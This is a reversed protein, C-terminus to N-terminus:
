SILFNTHLFNEFGERGGGPALDQGIQGLGLERSALDGREIDFLLAAWARDPPPLFIPSVWHLNSALQWFGVILAAVGVSLVLLLLRKPTM